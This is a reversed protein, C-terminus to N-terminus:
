IKKKFRWTDSSLAYISVADNEVHFVEWLKKHVNSHMDTGYIRRANEYFRLVYIDYLKIEYFVISGSALYIPKPLQCIAELRKQIDIPIKLKFVLGAKIRTDIDFCKIINLQVDRPLVEM